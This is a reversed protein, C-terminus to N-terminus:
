TLFSICFFIKHIPSAKTNALPKGFPTGSLCGLWLLWPRRTRIHALLLLPSAAGLLWVVPILYDSFVM